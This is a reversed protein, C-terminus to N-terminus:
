HELMHSADRPFPIVLPVTTGDRIQVLLKTFNSRMVFKSTTSCGKAHIYTEIVVAEFLNLRCLIGVDLSSGTPQETERVSGDLNLVRKQFRDDWDVESMDVGRRRTSADVTQIQERVVVPQDYVGTNQVITKLEVIPLSSFLGSGPLNERRRVSRLTEGNSREVLFTWASVKGPMRAEGLLFMGDHNFHPMVNACDMSRYIRLPDCAVGADEDELKAKWQRVNYFGFRDVAMHQWAENQSFLHKWNKSVKRCRILSVPDLYGGIRAMVDKKSWISPDSEPPPSPSAIPREGPPEESADDLKARKAPSEQVTALDTEGSDHSRKEHADIPASVLGQQALREHCVLLERMLTECQANLGQVLAAASAVFAPRDWKKAAEATTACDAIIKIASAKNALMPLQELQARRQKAQSGAMDIAISMREIADNLKVRADKARQKKREYAAGANAPNNSDSNNSASSPPRKRAVASTPPAKKKASSPPAPVSPVVHRSGFGYQAKQQSAREMAVSRNQPSPPKTQQQAETYPAPVASAIAAATAVADALASAPPTPIPLPFNRRNYPYYSSALREEHRKTIESLPTPEVEAALVDLPDLSNSRSKAEQQLTGDVNFSLSNSRERPVHVMTAADEKLVGAQEYNAAFAARNSSRLFKEALSMDNSGGELQMQDERSLARRQDASGTRDVDLTFTPLRANEQLEMHVPNTLRWSSPSEPSDISDM